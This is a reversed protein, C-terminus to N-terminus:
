RPQEIALFVTLLQPRPRGFSHHERLRGDSYGVGIYRSVNPNVSSTNRISPLYPDNEVKWRDAAMANFLIIDAHRQASM